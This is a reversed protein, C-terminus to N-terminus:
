GPICECFYMSPRQISCCLCGQLRRARKWMREGDNRYPPSEPNDISCDDDNRARDNLRGRVCVGKNKTEMSAVGSDDGLNFTMETPALSPERTMARPPPNLGANSGRANNAALGAGFDLKGPPMSMSRKMLSSAGGRKAQTKMPGNMSSFSRNTAISPTPSGDRDNRMKKNSFVQQSGEYDEGHLLDPDHETVEELARLGGATLRPRKQGRRGPSGHVAPGQASTTRDSPVGAPRNTPPVKGFLNRAKATHQTALTASSLIGNTTSLKDKAAKPKPAGKLTM